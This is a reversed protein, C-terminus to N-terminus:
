HPSIDGKTLTVWPDGQEGNLPRNNIIWDKFETSLNFHNNAIEYINKRTTSKAPSIHWFFSQNKIHWTFYQNIIGQMSSGNTAVKHWHNFGCYRAIEFHQVMTTLAYATYTLGSRGNNRVIERPLFEGKESKEFKWDNGKLRVSSDVRPYFYSIQQILAEHLLERDKFVVAATIVGLLGADKWNNDKVRMTQRVNGNTLVERRWWTEFLEKEEDKWNPYHQLLDAAYLMPNFYSGLQLGRDDGNFTTGANAWTMLFDTAKQAYKIDNSLDWALACTYAAYANQWLIERMETLNSNPEYGGMIHLTKHNSPTLELQREAEMLLKQYASYQPEQKKNIRDLIIEREKADYVTMYQGFEVNSMDITYDQHWPEPSHPYSNANLLVPLFFLINIFINRIIIPRNWFDCYGRGGLFLFSEILQYQTIYLRMSKM